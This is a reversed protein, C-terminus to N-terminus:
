GLLDLWEGDCQGNVTMIVLGVGVYGKLSLNDKEFRIIQNTQELLKRILVDFRDTSDLCVGTLAILRKCRLLWLLRNTIDMVGKEFHENSELAQLARHVTKCNSGSIQSRISAIRLLPLTWAPLLEHDLDDISFKGLLKELYRDIKPNCIDLLYLKCLLSIVDPIDSFQPFDRNELINIFFVMLEQNALLRFDDTRDHRYNLRYLLYQGLGCFGNSLSYNNQQRYMIEHRIRDDFDELIEDTDIDLFGTQSLYEIGVGIGTIGDAYDINQQQLIQEQMQGILAMAQDEYSKNGTYRAYHFFFVALGMNGHLLGPSSVTNGHQTLTESIYKLTQYM